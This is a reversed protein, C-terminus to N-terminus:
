RAETLKNLLASLRDLGTSAREVYISPDGTGPMGMAELSSRVVLIPTRLEPALQRM